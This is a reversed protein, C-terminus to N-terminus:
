FTWNVKLLWECNDCNALWCVCCLGSVTVVTVTDRSQVIVFSIICYTNSVCLCVLKMCSKENFTSTTDTHMSQGIIHIAQSELSHRRVFDESALIVCAAGDSTPSFLPV